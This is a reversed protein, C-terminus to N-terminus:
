EGSAVFFRTKGLPEANASVVEAGISVVPHGEPGNATLCHAWIVRGNHRICPVSGRVAAPWQAMITGRQRDRIERWGEVGLMGIEYRGPPVDGPMRVRFRADWVQDRGPVVSVPGAAAAAERCVFVREGRRVLRCGGLTAGSFGSDRMRVSLREVAHRASKYGAGSVTRVVRGVLECQANQKLAGWSALDIEVFGQPYTTLCTAAARAIAVDNEARAGAHEAGIRGIATTDDPLSKRVRVREFRDDINSADEIWSQERRDLFSRIDSPDINLFPRIVRAAPQESVLAMGSLGEGEASRRRRMEITEAQDRVHHALLLHLVGHDRCWDFMLRFRTDRAQAQVASDVSGDRQWKLTHHEIGLTTLWGHVQAAEDAAEARLGHDVTLAVVAGGREAAWALAAIALAMSDAGGSVGVALLPRTEFPEASRLATDLALEVGNSM